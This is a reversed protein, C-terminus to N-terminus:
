GLRKVAPALSRLNFEYGTEVPKDEKTLHLAAPGNFRGLEIM